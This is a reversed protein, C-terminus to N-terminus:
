ELISFPCVFIVSSYKILMADIKPTVGCVNNDSASKGFLVM